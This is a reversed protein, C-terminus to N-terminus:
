PEKASQVSPKTLERWMRVGQVTEAVDHVRLIMAGQELAFLGAAFSGAFRAEPKEGGGFQGIFRKRSVGVVLPHGFAALAGLGRLLEVNQEGLKAFGFGPDLAIAEPAIGAALAADRRALLERGVEAAVDGYEALGNMREPTGRMHMLIVPCGYSAALGAADPDHRLGSIDNVIMAGADLAAAMTGANRTDISIRAGADALARVVPVVRAIEDAVAVAAAGPRTSEGGIDIVDAGAKLMALGAAIADEPGAFRGGDSFSDPTVNLIGMVAPVDRDLGAWFKPRPEAGDIKM